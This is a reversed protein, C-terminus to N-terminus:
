VDEKEKKRELYHKVQESLVWQRYREWGPYEPGFYEEVRGHVLMAVTSDILTPNYLVSGPDSFQDADYAVTAKIEKGPKRKAPEPTFIKNYDFMM